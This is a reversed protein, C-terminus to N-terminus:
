KGKTKMWNRSGKVKRSLSKNLARVKKLQRKLPATDFFCTNKLSVSKFV